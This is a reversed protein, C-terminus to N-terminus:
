CTVPDHRNHRHLLLWISWVWGLSPFIVSGIFGGSSAPMAAWGIRAIFFCVLALGSAFGLLIWVWAVLLNIQPCSLKM